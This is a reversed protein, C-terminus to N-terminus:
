LDRVRRRSHAPFTAISFDIYAYGCSSQELVYKIPATLDTSTPVVQPDKAKLMAIQNKAKFSTLVVKQGNVYISLDATSAKVDEWRMIQLAPFKSDKLVEYFSYMIIRAATDNVICDCVEKPIELVITKDADPKGLLSFIAINAIVKYYPSFGTALTSHFAMERYPIFNTKNEGRRLQAM